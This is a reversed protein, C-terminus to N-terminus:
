LEPGTRLAENKRYRELDARLIDALSQNGQSEALKAGEQTTNRADVFRGVEAQAAALTRLIGPNGGSIERAREALQLAYAGDRLSKDPFTCMVWALNNLVDVFDPRLRLAQRWHAIAEKPSGKGLLAIAMNNEADAFDPEIELTRKYEDIAADFERKEALANGLNFHADTYRPYFSLAKEYCSIADDLKGEGLRLNGLNLYAKPNNPFRSLVQNFCATAEQIRGKKMLVLGFNNEADAYARESLGLKSKKDAYPRSIQLSSSYEDLAQDLRDRDLYFNGLNNHAIANRSTVELTHKWLSESDRWYTTQRAACWMMGLVAVSAAALLAVRRHRWHGFADPVGWSIIIYLGIQSLYAYRDARSQFGVQIIGIMPILMVVFWFWGTVLYPRKKRALIVVVSFALLLLGAGLVQWPSLNTEPHPYLPALKFPWFLDRLYLVYSTLANGLRATLPLGAVVTIGYQQALLTAVSSGACVLFLPVKEVTLKWWTLPPSVAASKSRVRSATRNLPWYDLLLLVFPTTVLTPKSMVGLWLWLLVLAYSSIARPRAAYRAYAALTACFFLGSLVDKREAIWAVSEVHLPHIAFATAVFASRWVAGTLRLFALFLLAAAVSHLLVNTFHHGGPHLGWLQFDLMHSVWTLPHWNAAYTHTLAWWLGSWRISRIVEANHYVYVDDDYNVFGYSLTRAFVIWIAAVIGAAIALNLGTSPQSQPAKRSLVGFTLGFLGGLM